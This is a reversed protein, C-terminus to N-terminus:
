NKPIITPLYVPILVTAASLGDGAPFQEPEGFKIGLVGIPLWKPYRNEEPMLCRLIDLELDDLADEYDVGVSVAGVVFFGPSTKLSAPGPAPALGKSRQVVILPYSANQDKIIENVWGSHVRSGADTNFGQAPNIIGLRAILAKRGESILNM